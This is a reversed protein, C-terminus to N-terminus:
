PWSFAKGDARQKAPFYGALGVTKAKNPKKEKKKKKKMRIQLLPQCSVFM